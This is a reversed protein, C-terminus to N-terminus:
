IDNGSDGGMHHLLASARNEGRIWSSPATFPPIKLWQGVFLNHMTCIANVLAGDDIGMGAGQATRETLRAM